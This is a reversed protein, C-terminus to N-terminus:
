IDRFLDRQENDWRRLVLLRSAANEPQLVPELEASIGIEVLEESTDDFGQRRWM